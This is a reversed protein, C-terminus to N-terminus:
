NTGSEAETALVTLWEPYTDFVEHWCCVDLADTVGVAAGDATPNINSYDLPAIAFGGLGALYDFPIAFGRQTLGVLGGGGNVFTAIDNERGSLADNEAATLGGSATESSSSAVAVLEFGALSQASIAAAGNVYTVPEGATGDAGAPDLGAAVSNWFSTVNDTASKGGGIVLLGGSGGNSVEDLVSNVAQRYNAIPGHGGVGGDEADIALLMVPGGVPAAAAPAARLPGVTAPSAVLLAALLAAVVVPVWMRRARAALM